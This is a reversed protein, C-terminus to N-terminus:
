FELKNINRSISFNFDQHDQESFHLNINSKKTLMIEKPQKQDLSNGFVAIQAITQKNPHKTSTQSPNCIIYKNTRITKLFEENINKISGHHSLKVFEVDLPNDMNFGLEKLANNIQDIHADGLLLYNKYNHTLILAISSKNPLKDDLGYKQQALSNIDKESTEEIKACIETEQKWKQPTWETQLERLTSLTPSLIKIQTNPIIETLYHELNENLTHLCKIYEIHKNEKLLRLLSDGDKGSVERSDNPSFFLNCKEPENFLLYKINKLHNQDKFIQVIGGIHDKDIHTVIVMDIIPTPIGLTFFSRQFPHGYGGDMLITFQNDITILISEGPNPLFEFKISM